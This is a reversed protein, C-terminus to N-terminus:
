EVKEPIGRNQPFLERYNQYMKLIKLSYQDLTKENALSENSFTNVQNKPSKNTLLTRIVTGNPTDHLSYDEDLEFNSSIFDEVSRNCTRIELIKFSGHKEILEKLTDVTFYLLHGKAQFNFGMLLEVENPIDVLLYGNKKLLMSFRDLASLPDNLHEFVHSITILDFFHHYDDKSLESEDIWKISKEQKLLNIYQPDSETIFVNTSIKKLIKALEGNSGGFDLSNSLKIGPIQTQLFELQSMAQAFSKERFMDLEEKTLHDRYIQSYYYKLASDSVYDSQIFECEHCKFIDIGFSLDESILEHNSSQCLRCTPM